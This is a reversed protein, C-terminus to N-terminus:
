KKGKKTTKKAEVPETTEIPESSDIVTATEKGTAQAQALQAELDKIKKELDTIKANDAAIVEAPTSYSSPKVESVSIIGKEKLGKFMYDAELEKLQEENVQLVGNPDLVLKNQFEFAMKKTNLVYKTAM